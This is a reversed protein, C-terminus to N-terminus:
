KVEEITLLHAVKAIMGASVPTQEVIVSQGRKHLGLAELNAIQRKTSGSKSRVQTLKLKAM